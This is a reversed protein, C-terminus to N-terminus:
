AATEPVPLRTRGTLLQQMMGQKIAQAKELRAQLAAIESDTDALTSAIAQQEPFSPLLIEFMSFQSKNVLPVAQEGAQERILSSLTTAAYYLYETDVDNHPIVSNIQQNTTLDQAAIGVKGITSGICVFLTSGAPIRRSRAFGKNSLMKETTTMYKSRGLDAPSAFLYDGGYNSRDSTPPTSGTIITGVSGLQARSWEGNFGPLRTRGTLLQQMMGQKIAQKKAILLDIEAIASGADDLAVVIADQGARDPLHVPLASLISTNLNPMTGGVANDQLWTQASISGLYHAVYAPNVTSLNSGFRAAFCGTGCLWGAQSTRVISRRGVDGRRSFVIDGERLAHRHLRRADKPGVRAIGAERIENDGLNIPMISLHVSCRTTARM